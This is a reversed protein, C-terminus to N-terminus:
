RCYHANGCFYPIQLWLKEIDCDKSRKQFCTDFSEKNGAKSRRLGVRYDDGYRLFYYYSLFRDLPERILNIYM